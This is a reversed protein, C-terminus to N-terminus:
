CVFSCIVQEDKELELERAETYPFLTQYDALKNFM